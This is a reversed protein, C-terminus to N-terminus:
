KVFQGVALLITILTGFLGFTGVTWKMMSGIQDYMTDFRQNLEKRFDKMDQKLEFMEREMVELRTLIHRYEDRSVTNNESIDQVWRGLAEAAENGISKKIVEP